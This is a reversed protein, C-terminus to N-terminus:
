ANQNIAVKNNLNIRGIPRSIMTFFQGSLALAVAVYYNTHSFLISYGSLIHGFYWLIDGLLFYNM